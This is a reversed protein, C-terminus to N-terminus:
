GARWIQVSYSWRAFRWISYTREIGSSTFKRKKEIAFWKFSITWYGREKDIDRRWPKM